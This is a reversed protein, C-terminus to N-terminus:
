ITYGYQAFIPRWYDTGHIDWAHCGFPLKGNNYVSIAREPFFEVAFQMATRFDPVNLQPWYRNVEVGWFVDENFQHMAVTEYTALKSRMRHLTALSHAVHRLSLGGNGVGNLTTIERPTIGDAKRLNLWLAVQKKANFWREDWPSKFDCDRLWPAGVYDYGRQCWSALEDRFVFADLQHILMYNFDTFAEYFTTSLMLRNYSQVSTFYADSFSRTEVAHPITQLIPTLDLTDPKAFIIPYHGLVRICQTLAVTEYPTLTAKYVPIVICVSM